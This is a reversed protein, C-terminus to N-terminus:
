DKVLDAFDMPKARRKYRDREMLFEVSGVESGDPLPPPEQAAMFESPRIVQVKPQEPAASANEFQSGPDYDLAKTSEGAIKLIRNQIEMQAALQDPEKLGVRARRPATISEEGKQAPLVTVSSHDHRLRVVERKQGILPILLPHSYRSGDRLEIIGGTEIRESEFHQATALALEEESIRPFGSAPSSQVFVAQPTLGNMDTGESNHQRWAEMMKSVEALVEDKTLLPSRAGPALKGVCWQKHLEADQDGRTMKRERTNAGIWGPKGRFWDAVWRHFRELRTGRPNHVRPMDHRIGNEYGALQGARQLIGDAPAFEKDIRQQYPEGGWVKGRFRGRDSHIAKPVGFARVLEVFLNIEDEVAIGHRLEYESGECLAWVLPYMSRADYFTLLWYRRIWPEGRRNVCRRPDYSFLNLKCEDSEVRELPALDAYSRDIHGCAAKLADPGERAAQDISDLSRLFREVTARSPLHYVHAVRCGPTNQKGVLYNILSRYCQTLTLKQILYCGTLHARMDADLVAGTGPMPGPGDNALDLLNERQRWTEVWRQISRGCVEEREAIAQLFERKSSYGQAKWNCNLFLTVIRYRRLVVDRESHPLKLADIQDDVATRPLLGLQAPEPEPADATELLKTRWRQQADFSMSRPNILRGQRGEEGNKWILAHSDGPQMRRYVEVRSIREFDMAQEVTPWESENM